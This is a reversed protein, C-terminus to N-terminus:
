WTKCHGHALSNIRDELIYRKDDLSCLGTKTISYSQVKHNVSRILNFSVPQQLEATSTGLLAKRFDEHKMRKIMHKKIGKATAKNTDEDKLISYMKARLGVFEHIPSANTEDKFKGIVKKNSTSYCAHEAPYDSTDYLEINDKMDAYVDETQIHYTLSDTDTFCLKAKDGYRKQIVNYHFDYMLVKSLDLICMGVIMPRNYVVHTKGMKIAALDNSFIEFDKFHPKSAYQVFKKSDNLLKVDIRKDVNEMTKGFVANNLLKFLDKEFDNKTAARKQTNFDIYKKLYPEQKFSLVRHVKTLKMGLSLYLKLNRYHLVYKEKSCLNPVLKKVNGKPVGLQVRLAEMTPSCEPILAEPALPYDNFKDHLEAPVELDVELIYGRDSEDSADLVNIETEEWKYDGVPLYQSMAWGYLNNADLYQIYSTPVEPNYAEGMYKNNARAYRTSIMSIGGRMGQQVMELMELQGDSFCQINVETMKMMADWSFGPATFYHCPDLKYNELCMARFAEFFEALLVVDTKLYLSLYDFFSKCGAKEWVLQTRSYDEAKVHEDYLKSYFSEQSPLETKGWKDLSDYWDYPFVGKQRLLEKCEATMTAFEANFMDFAHNSKNLTAVLSELSALVFQCSDLFVTKDISFSLYKEMTQPICTIARPIMGYETKKKLSGAEQLILHSDYGKLNHFIVPLKTRKYNYEVNCKNHAAGRFAGTLHDHDYVKDGNLKTGCIHCDKANVYMSLEEPTRSQPLNTKLVTMAEDQLRMVYDLFAEMCREGDFQRYGAFEQLYEPYKNVLYCGVNSVDHYEYAKTKDGKSVDIPKLYSECDAYLVFPVPLQKHYNTFHCNADEAAPLSKVAGDQFQKCKNKAVHNKLGEETKFRCMCKACCAVHDGSSTRAFANLNKILVYHSKVDDYVRLLNIPERESSVTNIHEVDYQTADSALSFVNIPIQNMEEFRAYDTSAVPFAIDDFKLSLGKAVAQNKVASVRGLNKSSGALEVILGTLVAYEFCRDDENQVNVCCKKTDLWAPLPMYSSGRFASFRVIKLGLSVISVVRWGSGLNQFEDVKSKLVDFCDNYTKYVDIANLIPKTTDVHGNNGNYSGSAFSVERIDGEHGDREMNVNLRFVVKYSKYRRLVKLMQSTVRQHVVAQFMDVSAIEEGDVTFTYEKAANKYELKHKKIATMRSHRPVGAVRKPLWSAKESIVKSLKKNVKRRRQQTNYEELLRAIRQREAEAKVEAKAQAKKTVKQAKKEKAELEMRAERLAEKDKVYKKVIAYEDKRQGTLRPAMETDEELISM